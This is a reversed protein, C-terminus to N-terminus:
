FERCDSPRDSRSFRYPRAQKIAVDRADGVLKIEVDMAFWRDDGSPDLLAQFHDHLAAVYCSIRQTDRLSLVHEGHSLSSGHQYEVEPTGPVLRVHHLLQETSVGPAPNAVSAEGEQANMYHIDARTPDLVDRSIVIVNARESRFAAHVLVAMAVGAQDINGFEREDYAREDWLSAWVARIAGAIPREPDNLGAPWSEYLGAGNFGPLDETNSSSRFRLRAQGFRQDVQQEVAALLQPDIPAANIAARVASLAATRQLPDSSFAPDAEAAALLARAGSREFHALYHQMPIAFPLAPLPLSGSCAPDNSVVRALEALQAAKAGVSPLDEIGRGALDVLGGVSDDLRPALPPGIPLRSTQFNAVEQSTAARLSYGQGNVEFRVLQGLLSAVDPQNRADPMGLNPTGRNQSLVNVHALPTQFAETILGAVFPIDNPVAETVAIVDPGPAARELEDVAFFQLRGFAVGESLLQFRQRAFPANAGVIPLSGAISDLATEQRPESPHVSWAQVDEVDLNQMVRFFAQQMQDASIQDGVAFDLARLGAAPYTDLTGLFYRRGEVEFYERESFEYWGQDFAQAQTPDCRDLAAQGDIQERIFTYHLPWARTGLLHVAAGAQLDVIFKVGSLGVNTDGAALAEYDGPTYLHRVRDAVDRALLPECDANDAGPTPSCFRLRHVRDDLHALSQGDPWRMFDVRDIAESEQDFITVVGEFAPDASLASVDPDGVAIVLRKGAGLQEAGWSLITGAEPAPWPQGPATPAIQLRYSRLDLAEDSINVVEIFSAPKLALESLVLPGTQAQWDAPWTFPPWTRDVVEPEPPPGCRTGNDREPSAYRCIQFPGHASPLRAYVDNQNLAPVVVRDSTRQTRTDFLELTVGASSLKFDAHRPGQTEDSDAVVVTVDGSALLQAPLAFRHGQEDRLEYDSLQIARASANALEVWDEVQGAEDVYAADNDTMVENLVLPGIPGPVADSTCAALGFACFAHLLRRRLPSTM